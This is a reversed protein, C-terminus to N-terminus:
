MAATLNARIAEDQKATLWKRAIMEQATRAIPDRAKWQAEEDKDRYGFASGLLSGGHHLYRYVLAEILTPGKGARMHEVAMRSATVVAALDMGDVRWAPIAFGGGRASLRTEKAQEE